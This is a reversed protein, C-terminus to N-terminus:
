VLLKPIGSCETSLLMESHYKAVMFGFTTSERAFLAPPNYDLHLLFKKLYSPQLQLLLWDGRELKEERLIFIVLLCRM